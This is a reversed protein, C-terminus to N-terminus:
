SGTWCVCFWIFFMLFGIGILIWNNFLFGLLDQTQKEVKKNLDKNKNKM